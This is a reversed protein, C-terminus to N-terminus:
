FRNEVNLLRICIVSSFENFDFLELNVLPSRAYFTRNRNIFDTFAVEAVAKTLQM